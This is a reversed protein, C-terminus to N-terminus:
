QLLPNILCNLRKRRYAEAKALDVKTMIQQGCASDPLVDLTPDLAPHSRGKFRSYDVRHIKGSATKIQM